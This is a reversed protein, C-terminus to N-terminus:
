FGEERVACETPSCRVFKGYGPGGCVQMEFRPPESGGEFDGNWWQATMRHRLRDGLSEVRWANLMRTRNYIPPYDPDLPYWRFDAPEIWKIVSESAPMVVEIESAYIHINGTDRLVIPAEGVRVEVESCPPPEDEIVVEIEADRVLITQDPLYNFKVPRLVLTEVGETTGDRLARLGLEVTTEGDSGDLPVTTREMLLIDDASATGYSAELGIEASVRELEPKLSPSGIYSVPVAVTEGEVIELSLRVPEAAALTALAERGADAPAVPTEPGGDGCGALAAIVFISGRWKM